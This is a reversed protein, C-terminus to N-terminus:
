NRISDIGKKAVTEFFDYVSDYKQLINVELEDVQSDSLNAKVKVMEM